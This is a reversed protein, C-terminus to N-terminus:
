EEIEVLTVTFTLDKGALRHNLDVTVADASIGTVTAPM